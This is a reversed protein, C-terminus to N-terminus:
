LGELKLQVAKGNEAVLIMPTTSMEYAHMGDASEMKSIWAPSLLTLRTRLFMKGGASWVQSEPSAPIALALSGPPPIGDLVSLLLPNPQGPLGDGVAMPKANPGMGQIRLDVRYDVAKQGPILTIMVPTSLNKLKVAMNGYTYLSSAQIMLTNSSKDWQINFATPNGLDYADIPWPAGTSDLFVLSSVFGAALRIVPPTSGPSLNVMQSTAIPKPPVRAPAAAAFQSQDYAQKLRHVQDPSMPMLGQVTNAFATERVDPQAQVMKQKPIGSPTTAVPQQAAAQAERQQAQEPLEMGPIHLNFKRIQEEVLLDIKEDETLPKAQSAANSAQHNNKNNNLLRKQIQQLQQQYKAGKSTEDAAMAISLHAGLVCGAILRLSQNIRTRM